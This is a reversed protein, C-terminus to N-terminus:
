FKSKQNDVISAFNFADENFIILLTRPEEYM